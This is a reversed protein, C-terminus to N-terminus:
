KASESHFLKHHLEISTHKVYPSPCNQEECYEFVIKEPHAEKIHVLLAQLDIFAYKEEACECYVGIASRCKNWRRLWSYKECLMHGHKIMLADSFSLAQALIEDTQGPLIELHLLYYYGIIKILIEESCNDLSIQLEIHASKQAIHYCLADLMIKEFPFKHLIHAFSFLQEITLTQDFQEKRIGLLFADFLQKKDLECKTFVANVQLAFKLIPLLENDCNFDFKSQAGESMGTFTLGMLDIVLQKSLTDKDDYLPVLSSDMSKTQSVIALVSVLLLTKSFLKNMKMGKHIYKGINPSNIM